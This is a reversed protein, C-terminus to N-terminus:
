FWVFKLRWMLVGSNSELFSYRLNEELLGPRMSKWKRSLFGIHVNEPLCVQLITLADGEFEVVVVSSINSAFDKLVSAKGMASDVPLKWVWIIGPQFEWLDVCISKRMYQM